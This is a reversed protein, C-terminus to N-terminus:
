DNIIAFCDGARMVVCKEGEFTIETGAYKGYLVNDGVSIGDSEIGVAKVLGKQPKERSQEPIIIGGISKDPTIEPIVIIRDGLPTLKNM